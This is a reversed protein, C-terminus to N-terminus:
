DSAALSKGTQDPMAVNEMVDEVACKDLLSADNELDMDTQPVM